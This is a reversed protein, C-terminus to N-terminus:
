RRFTMRADYDLVADTVAGRVAGRLRRRHAPTAGAAILQEIETRCVSYIRDAFDVPHEGLTESVPAQSRLCDLFGSARARLDPRDEAAAVSATIGCVVSIGAVSLRSRRAMAVEIPVM